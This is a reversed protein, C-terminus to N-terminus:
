KRVQGNNDTYSSRYLGYPQELILGKYNIVLSYYVDQELPQQKDKLSIQVFDRVVDFEINPDIDIKKLSEIPKSDGSWDAYKGLSLSNRDITMNKGHLVIKTTSNLCKFTLKVKGDFTFERDPYKTKNYDGIFTQLEVDYLIPKLDGPLRYNLKDELHPWVKSM